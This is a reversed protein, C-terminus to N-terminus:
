PTLGLADMVVCNGLIQEEDSNLPILGSAVVQALDEGLEATLCALVGASVTDTSTTADSVTSGLLCAGLAAQQTETLDDTGSAVVAASETGLSSELCAVVGASLTTTSSSSGLSTSLVCSGLLSQQESTLPIGGSAVARALDATMDEQLCAIVPDTTESTTAMSVSLVCTGLIETEEPTLPILGSEVVRAVEEGLEETLCALVGTLDSQADGLSAELLCRSLAAEQEPTHTVLNSLAAEAGDAGLSDELCVAVADSLSESGTAETPVPSPLATPAPTETPAATATPTVTPEPASSGGCAAVALISIGVILANIVSKM